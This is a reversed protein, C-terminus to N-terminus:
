NLTDSLYPELEQQMIRRARHLRSMITGRPAGFAHAMEHYSMGALERGILVQRYHEPMEELVEVLRELIQQFHLDHDPGRFHDNLFTPDGQELIRAALERLEPEYARIAGWAREKVSEM